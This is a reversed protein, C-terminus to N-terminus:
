VHYLRPVIALPGHGSLFDRLSLAPSEPHEVSIVEVRRLYVRGSRHQRLQLIHFGGHLSLFAALGGLTGLGHLAQRHPGYARLDASGQARLRDGRRVQCHTAMQCARHHRRLRGLSTRQAADCRRLRLPRLEGDRCQHADAEAGDRPHTLRSTAYSPARGVAHLRRM